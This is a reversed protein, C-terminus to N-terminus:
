IEAEFSSMSASCIEVGSRSGEGRVQLNVDFDEGDREAPLRALM